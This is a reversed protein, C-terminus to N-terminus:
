GGRPRGAVSRLAEVAADLEADTVYPAPGLRLLDGRADTFVGRARLAAAVEVADPLRVAVFGGRRADEAPTVVDFDGALAARLRGTQRLSLARLRPVTLGYADFFRIVARARYHSSPDYTSGAFRDAGTTGYGVPGDRRPRARDAFDAFWGTYVPRLTCGPPVRMWCCGEGWQAYKYGGGVVFVADGGLEAVTFPVVNFAHYADFLVEAGADRAAAAAAALDPVVAATRFLVTSALLAATDARVAAALRAGLTELPTAPVRTVAIGAEEFRALQRALSHFEGDTTVLHRRRRWDLASLFRTVLEHTNPALAIDEPRAGIRGAVAARVADAAEAARAWKADAFAAADDFAELLGERAVDPWAQHSHGTLLIRGPRLFASYHPRLEEPRIPPASM